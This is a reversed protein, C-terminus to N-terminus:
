DPRWFRDESPIDARWALVKEVQALYNPINPDDPNGLRLPLLTKDRYSIWSATSSLRTPPHILYDTPTFAEPSGSPHHLHLWNKRQQPPLPEMPLAEPSDRSQLAIIGIAQIGAVWFGLIGAARGAAM